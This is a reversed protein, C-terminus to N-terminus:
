REEKSIHIFDLVMRNDEIEKVYVEDHWDFNSEKNLTMRKLGMQYYFKTVGPIVYFKVNTEVTMDYVVFYASSDSKSIETILCPRYNNFTINDSTVTPYSKYGRGYLFDGTYFEYTEACLYASIALAM